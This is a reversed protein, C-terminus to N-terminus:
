KFLRGVWNLFDVYKLTSDLLIASQILVIVVVGGSLAILPRDILWATFNDYDLWTCIMKVFFILFIALIYLYLVGVVQDRMSGLRPTVREVVRNGVSSTHSVDGITVLIVIFPIFIATAVVFVQIIDSAVAVFARPPTIYLLIISTEVIIIQKRTLPQLTKTNLPQPTEQSM